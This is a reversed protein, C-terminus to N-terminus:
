THRVHTVSQLWLSFTQIVKERLHDPKRVVFFRYGLLSLEFVKVLRGAAVESAVLVDSFIGIGQGALRAEIALLEERLSLHEM